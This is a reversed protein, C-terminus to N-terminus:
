SQPAQDSTPSESRALEKARDLLRDTARYVREMEDTTMPAVEDATFEPRKALIRRVLSGVVQADPLPRPDFSDQTMPLNPNAKLHHALLSVLWFEVAEL